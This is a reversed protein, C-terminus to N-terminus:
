NDWKGSIGEDIIKRVTDESRKIKYNGIIEGISAGKEVDAKIILWTRRHLYETKSYKRPPEEKEQGEKRPSIDEQITSQSLIIEDKILDCYTKIVDRLAAIRLSGRPSKAEEDFTSYGSFEIQSQTKDSKLIELTGLEGWRSFLRWRILAGGINRDIDAKNCRLEFTYPDPGETYDRLWKDTAAVLASWEFSVIERKGDIHKESKAISIIKKFTKHKSENMSSVDKGIRGPHAIMRV